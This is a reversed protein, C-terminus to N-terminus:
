KGNWNRIGVTSLSQGTDATEQVQTNNGLLKECDKQAHCAKPAYDYLNGGDLVHQIMETKGAEKLHRIVHYRESDLIERGQKFFPRLGDPVIGGRIKGLLGM